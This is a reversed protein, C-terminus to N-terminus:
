EHNKSKITREIKKILFQSKAIEPGYKHISNRRMNEAKSIKELNEPSCDLTNGNKFTVIDNKSLPGIKKRYVERQLLQWNGKSVRIYLYPKGTTTDIRERLVGDELTNHPENGKKFQNKIFNKQKEPAMWETIPKGKNAPVNGKKFQNERKRSLSIEVPVKLKLIKMRNFVSYHSKGMIRAMKKVPLELYHRRLYQDDQPTFSTQLSAKKSKFMTTVHAPVSINMAKMRNRIYTDSMNIVAAMDSASIKLYNEKIYTDHSHM